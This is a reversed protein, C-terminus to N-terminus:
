RRCPIRTPCSRPPLFSPDPPPPRNNRPPHIHKHCITANQIGKKQLPQQRPRPNLSSSLHCFYLNILTKNNSDFHAPASSSSSSTSLFSTPYLRSLISFPSLLSSSADLTVPLSLPPQHHHHLSSLLPSSSLLSIFSILFLLFFTNYDSLPFNCFFFTPSPVLFSSLLFFFFLLLPSLSSFLFPTSLPTHSHLERPVLFQNLAAYMCM